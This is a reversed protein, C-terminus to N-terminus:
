KFSPMCGNKNKQERFVCNECHKKCARWMGLHSCNDQTVKLIKSCSKTEPAMLKRVTTLFNTKTAKIKIRAKIIKRGHSEEWM